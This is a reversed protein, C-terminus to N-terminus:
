LDWVFGLGSNLAQYANAKDFGIYANLSFKKLRWSLGGGLTQYNDVTADNLFRTDALYVNAYLSQLSFLPFDYMIGNKLIDQEIPTTLEYKDIKITLNDLTTYQTVLSLLGRDFLRWEFRNIGGFQRVIAATVGDISGIGYAGVFPTIEWGFRDEGTRLVPRFALGLDTGLGYFETGELENYDFVTNGVFSVRTGFHLWLPIGLRTRTGEMTGVPTETEYSNGSVWVGVHAGSEYGRMEQGRATSQFMGFTHFTTDAMLATTSGPSGDTIAAASAKIAAKLLDVADSSGDFYFWDALKQALDNNDKGTIDLELGTLSSSIHITHTSDYFKINLADPLGYYRLDGSYFSKGKLIQFDGSQNILSKVLKPLSSNEVLINGGAYGVDIAFLKAAHGYPAM